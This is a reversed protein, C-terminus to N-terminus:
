PVPYDWLGCKCGLSRCLVWLPMCTGVRMEVCEVGTGQLIRLWRGMHQGGVGAKVGQPLSAQRHVWFHVHGTAHM